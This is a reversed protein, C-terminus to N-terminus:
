TCDDTEIALAPAPEFGPLLLALVIEAVVDRLRERLNRVSSSLRCAWSSSSLCDRSSPYMSSGLGSKWAGFRPPAREFAIGIMPPVGTPITASSCAKSIGFTRMAPPSEAARGDCSIGPGCLWRCLSSACTVFTAFTGLSGNGIGEFGCTTGDAIFERLFEAIRCGKRFGVGCCTM